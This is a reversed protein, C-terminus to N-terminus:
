FFAVYIKIFISVLWIVPSLPQKRSQVVTEVAVHVGELIEHEDVKILEDNRM